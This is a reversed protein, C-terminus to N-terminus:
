VYIIFDKKFDQIKDNPKGKQNGVLRTGGVTIYDFNKHIHGCIWTHVKKSTLFEDLHSAYLSLLNQRKKVKKLVDYTPCHHTVILLKMNKKQCYKIMKDIFRVESLFKEKYIKTTMGNVRVIYKPIDIEPNSWLTCGSICINGIIISTKNLIYLNEITQEIKYLRETLHYMSELPINVCSYYEHNGPVYLVIQFHLCLQKLFSTLQEIKYLSGIDGALILVDSVPKIFDLPNPVDNNKYEIHLDSAIQFTIM